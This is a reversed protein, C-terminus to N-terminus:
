KSNIVNLINNLIKDVPLSFDISIDNISCKNEFANYLCFDTTFYKGYILSDDIHFDIKNEACYQAKAKDWLDNDVHFSGDNYHTIKGLNDFHEVMSWVTSYKINHLKLYEEIDSKYGGSIVYILCGKELAYENFKKFFLPNATIVGHYDLGIKIPKNM